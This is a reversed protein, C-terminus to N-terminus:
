ASCRTQQRGHRQYSHSCSTASNTSDQPLSSRDPQQLICNMKICSYIFSIIFNSLNFNFSFTSNRPLTTRAVPVCFIIHLSIQRTRESFCDVLDQRDREHICAFGALTKSVRTTRKMKKCFFYCSEAHKLSLHLRRLMVAMRSTLYTLLSRPSSTRQWPSLKDSGDGLVHITKGGSKRVICQQM